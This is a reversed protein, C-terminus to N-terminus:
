RDAAAVRQELTSRMDQLISALREPVGPRMVSSARLHCALPPPSQVSKALAHYMDRVVRAIQDAAERSLGPDATLHRTVEEVTDERQRPVVVFFSEPAVGLWACLKLFTALDPQAGAEVRSLTSFSVRAEEAAQRISQSAARRKARIRRGLEGVEIGSPTDRGAGVKPKPRPPMPELTDTM